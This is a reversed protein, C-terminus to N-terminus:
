RGAVGMAKLEWGAAVHEIFATIRKERAREFSQRATDRQGDAWQRQGIAFWAEVLALEREDVRKHREV